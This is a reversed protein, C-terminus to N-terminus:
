VASLLSVQSFATCACETRSVSRWCQSRAASHTSAPKSPKAPPPSVKARSRGFVDLGLNGVADDSLRKTDLAGHLELMKEADIAVEFTSGRAIVVIYSPNHGQDGKGKLRFPFM